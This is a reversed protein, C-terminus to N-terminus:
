WKKRRAGNTPQNIVRLHQGRVTVGVQASLVEVLTHHLVEELHQLLFVAGVDAAVVAGQLLQAALHTEGQM